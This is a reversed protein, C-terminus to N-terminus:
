YYTCKRIKKRLCQLIHYPNVSIEQGEPTTIYIGLHLHVPFMGSTGEQGYGTNGMFGLIEGAQVRDGPTFDEEYSSLHAYYFYGGSDSRIGIRYGGLPLWGKQEVIGDTISVIPYYGSQSVPGFLDTGEHHRNGGYTRSDMWSDEYSIDDSAVPFYQLNRWIAEYYKKLQLYCDKKYLLYFTNDPFIHQPHFHSNLMTTTLLDCWDSPYLGSETLQRYLEPSLDQQRFDASAACDKKLVSVTSRSFSICSLISNSLILIFLVFFFSSRSMSTM